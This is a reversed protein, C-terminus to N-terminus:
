KVDFAIPNCTLTTSSTPHPHRIALSYHGPRLRGYRSDLDYEYFATEGPGILRGSTNRPATAARALHQETLPLVNGASDRLESEFFSTFGASVRKGTGNALHLRVYDYPPPQSSRVYLIGCRWGDAEPGFALAVDLDGPVKGIVGDVLGRENFYIHSTHGAETRIEYRTRGAPDTQTRRIPQKEDGRYELRWARDVAGDARLDTEVIPRGLTDPTYTRISHVRLTGEACTPKMTPGTSTYYIEKFVFGKEDRFERRAAVGIQTAFEYCILRSQPASPAQGPEPQQSALAAVVLM